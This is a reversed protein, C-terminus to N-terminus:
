AATYAANLEPSSHKENQYTISKRAVPVPCYGLLDFLETKIDDIEDNCFDEIYDAAMSGMMPASISVWASSVDFRCKGTAVHRAWGHFTDGVTDRISHAIVDSSDSISLAHDCFKQQLTDDTWGYDVTNLVAYKVTSCCPAHANMNGMRGSTNKPTDQLEAM